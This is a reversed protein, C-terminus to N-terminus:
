SLYEKPCNVSNERILELFIHDHGRPLRRDIEFCIRTLFCALTFSLANLIWLPVYLLRISTANWLTARVRYGSPLRKVLDKVDYGIRQHGWRKMARYTLWPPFIRATNTPTSLWLHGGPALVRTISAIFANDDPVHEIVDLAFVVSFSNDAFPLKCGDAQVVSLENTPRLRPHIDVGVKFRGVQKLLFYGDDCGVDLISAANVKNVRLHYTLILWRYYSAFHPNPQRKMFKSLIM